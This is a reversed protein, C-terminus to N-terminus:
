HSHLAKVKKTVGGVGVGVCLAAHSVVGGCVNQISYRSNYLELSCFM